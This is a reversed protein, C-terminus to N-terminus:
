NVFKYELYSDYKDINGDKVLMYNNPAFIQPTYLAKQQADAKFNIKVSDFFVTNSKSDFEVEVVVKEGSNCSYANQYQVGNSYINVAKTDYGEVSFDSLYIGSKCTMNFDYKIINKYYDAFDYNPNSVQYSTDETSDTIVYKVTVAQDYVVYEEVEGDDNEVHGVFKVNTLTSNAVPNILKVEVMYLSYGKLFNSYYTNNKYDDTYKKYEDNEVKNGKKQESQYQNFDNIQAFDFDTEAALYYEIPLSNREKINEYTVEYDVERDFGFELDIDEIKANELVLVFYFSNTSKGYSYVTHNPDEDLTTYVKADKISMEEERTLVYISAILVVIVLGIIAINKKSLSM